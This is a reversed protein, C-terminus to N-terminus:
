DFMQWLLESDDTKTMAKRIKNFAKAADEPKKAYSTLRDGKWGARKLTENKFKMGVVGGGGMAILANEINQHPLREITIKSFDAASVEPFENSM